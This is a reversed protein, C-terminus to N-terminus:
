SGTVRDWALQLAGAATGTAVAIALAAIFDIPAALAWVDLLEVVVGAIVLTAVMWVISVVWDRRSPTELVEESPEDDGLGFYHAVRGM